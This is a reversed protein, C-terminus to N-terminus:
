TNLPNGGGPHNAHYSRQSLIIGALMLACGALGRPPISESLLLWGGIVAFVTELSLIIAAHAPPAHRQAAVQLTYAIGVSCVGGYVIPLAADLIAGPLVPEFAFAAALSLLSVVAYQMFALLLTDIRTSLAGILLVHGAWFFASVLVLLDGRAVTFGGTVSLLYLGAAAVLAGAWTGIGPRQRFCIGVLPVIVVYLGTIFGAKGATTYVIGIQQFSAGCFLVTGTIGGFLMARRTLVPGPPRGPPRRRLLLLPLLSLCGLAFRVGNFLFPGIHEMGARQAVFAFGWIAAALLLLLESRLTGPNM